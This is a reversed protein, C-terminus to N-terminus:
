IPEPEKADTECALYSLITQVNDTDYEIESSFCRVADFFDDCSDSEKDIAALLSVSLLVFSGWLSLEEKSEAQPLYRNFLYAAFRRLEAERACFPIQGIPENRGLLRDLYVDWSSDLRELARFRKEWVSVALFSPHSGLLSRIQDISESLSIEPQYLLYLVQNRIALFSTNEPRSEWESFDFNAELRSEPAIEEPIPCHPYTLILEAAAECCLGLGIEIRDACDNRFRPHLACIDCLSDEGLSLILDCLGNQNLFPCRDGDGLCFCAEGDSTLTIKDSLRKGLEGTVTQYLALTDPDIDIEWGICCSHKCRDAKCVFSPYYPPAYLKM